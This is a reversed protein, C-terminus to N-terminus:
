KPSALYESRTQAQDSSTTWKCSKNTIGVNLQFWKAWDNVGLFLEFRLNLDNLTFFYFHFFCLSPYRKKKNPTILADEFVFYLYFNMIIFDLHYTMLFLSITFLKFLKYSIMFKFKLTILIFYFLITYEYNAIFHKYNLM